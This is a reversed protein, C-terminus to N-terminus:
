LKQRWHSLRRARITRGAGQGLLQSRKLRGLGGADIRIGFVTGVVVQMWPSGQPHPLVTVTASLSSSRSRCCWGHCDVRHREREVAAAEDLADDAGM